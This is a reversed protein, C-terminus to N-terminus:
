KHIIRIKSQNTNNSPNNRPFLAHSSCLYRRARSPLPSGCFACSSNSRFAAPCTVFLAFAVSAVNNVVPNCLNERSYDLNLICILKTDQDQM